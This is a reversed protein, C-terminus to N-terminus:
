NGAAGIPGSLASFSASSPKMACTAAQNPSGAQAWASTAPGDAGTAIPIAASSIAPVRHSSPTASRRLARRARAM